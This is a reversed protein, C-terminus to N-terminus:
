LLELKSFGSKLRMLHNRMFQEDSLGMTGWQGQPKTCAQFGHAFPNDRHGQTPVASMQWMVTDSPIDWWSRAPTTRPSAAGVWFGHVNRSLSAERGGERRSTQKKLNKGLELIKICILLSRDQSSFLGCMRKRMKETKMDQVMISLRMFAFLDWHFPNLM